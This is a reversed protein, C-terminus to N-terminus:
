AAVELLAGGWSLGGGVVVLAILDGERLRQQNQTLVSPAGAAGCNGFRDVNFWHDDPAIGASRIIHDLMSRNAQHGIFKMGAARGAGIRERLQGLVALTRKIAFTQVTRGDQTFHGAQVFRVRGCSKPDSAFLSHVVRLRAPVRLSVVQAASGDGWLVCTNRDNYDISRTSNEVQLLLIFDPLADPRMGRLLHLQAGFTSCASNVDLGPADIGLAAAITCAEAPCSSQPSCSGSIVMGIDAPTLGAAAIAERAALAGTQANSYESAEIAQRPDANRTTRIYDLPLVTRRSEIGVREMIWQPDTGIDLDRLFANDIENPPHFEGLGHVHVM